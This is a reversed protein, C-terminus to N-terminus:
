PRPRDPPPRRRLETPPPGSRNPLSFDEREDEPRKEEEGQAPEDGAEDERDPEAEEGVKEAAVRDIEGVEAGVDAEQRQHQHDKADGELHHNRGRTGPAAPITLLAVRRCQRLGAIKM